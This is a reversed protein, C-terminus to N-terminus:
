RVKYLQVVGGAQLARLIMNECVRRKRVERATTRTANHACVKIVDIDFVRRDARRPLRMQRRIACGSSSAINKAGVTRASVRGSVPFRTEIKDSLLPSM